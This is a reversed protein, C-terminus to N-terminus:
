LRGLQGSQILDVLVNWTRRSSPRTPTRALASRTGKSSSRPVTRASRASRSSTSRWALEGGQTAEINPCVAAHRGPAARWGRLTRRVENLTEALQAAKTELLRRVHSCPAAGARRLAVIHAIEALTLGLGRAGTVFSLLPLVDAPYARYGSATRRAQPLIGRAEYLRLAKRSVGSRAAVEGILLGSEAM